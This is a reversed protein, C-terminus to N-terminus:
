VKFVRRIRAGREPQIEVLGVLSGNAGCIQVVQSEGSKQSERIDGVLRGGLDRSIQGNSFLKEDRLSATLRRMFPLSQSLPIYSKGLEEVDSKESHAWRELSGIGIADHVRFPQSETRRLEEALAGVGLKDGLLSAWSRIYSGKSCCMRVKLRKDGDFELLQLNYFNMVKIPKEVPQDSRAYSYLKRGKVKVASFSPVPIQMEGQLDLVATEVEERSLSVASESLAEGTRDLTDTTKGLLVDVIYSKDQTLIYDSIKTGQGLLLVLLGSAFPDLTGCHGVASIGLLRRVKSVVDHSSWDVPKDVLLLGHLDSGPSKKATQSAPPQSSTM